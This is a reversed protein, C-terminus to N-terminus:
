IRRLLRVAEQCGSLAAMELWSKGQQKLEMLETATAVTGAAEQQAAALLLKGLNLQAPRYGKTAARRYWRVAEGWDEQLAEAGVVDGKEYVAGLEFMAPVYGCNAASELWTLAAVLDAEVGTGSRLCHSVRLMATPVGAAVAADLRALAVATEAPSRHPRQFFMEVLISAAVAVSPSPPQSACCKQLEEEATAASSAECAAVLHLAADELVHTYRSLLPKSGKRLRRHKALQELAIGVTRVAAPDMLQREVHIIHHLISEVDNVSSSPTSPVEATVAHRVRSRSSPSGSQSVAASPSLARVAFSVTRPDPLPNRSGKVQPLRTPESSPRTVEYLNFGVTVEKQKSPPPM